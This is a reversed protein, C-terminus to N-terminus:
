KKGIKWKKYEGRVRNIVARRCSGCGTDIRNEGTLLNFLYYTYALEEPPWVRKEPEYLAGNEEFHEEITM